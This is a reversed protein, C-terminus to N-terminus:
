FVPTTRFDDNGPLLCVVNVETQFDNPPFFVYLTVLLMTSAVNGVIVKPAKTFLGYFFMRNTDCLLSEYYATDFFKQLM